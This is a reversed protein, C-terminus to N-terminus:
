IGNTDCQQVTKYMHVKIPKAKANLAIVTLDMFM